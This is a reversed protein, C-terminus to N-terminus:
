TGGLEIALARLVGLDLSRGAGIIRLEIAAPDLLGRVRAAISVASLEGASPHRDGLYVLQHTLEPKNTKTALELAAAALAGAVDSAGGPKLNMLFTHAAALRAPLKLSSVNEQARSQSSSWSECASDCALLVFPEDPDMELLLGFAFAAQARITEMTQSHSVDIAIARSLQRFQPRPREQPLDATFRLGFYGEETSRHPRTDVRAQPASANTQAGATLASLYPEPPAGQTLHASLQAKSTTARGVVVSFDHQPRFQKVQYQPRYFAGDKQTSADYNRVLPHSLEAATDNAVVEISFDEIQ